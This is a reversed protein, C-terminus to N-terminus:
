ASEGIPLLKGFPEIGLEHLRYLVAVQDVVYREEGSVRCLYGKQSVAVRLCERICNVEDDQWDLAKHLGSVTIAEGYSDLIVAAAVVQDIGSFPKVGFRVHVAWAQIAIKTITLDNKIVEFEQKTM